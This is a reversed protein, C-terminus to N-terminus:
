VNFLIVVYIESFTDRKFRSNWLYLRNTLISIKVSRGSELAHAAEVEQCQGSDQLAAAAAAIGVAAAAAAAFVSTLLDWAFFSLVLISRTAM